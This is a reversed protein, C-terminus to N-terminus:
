RDWEIRVAVNKRPKGGMPRPGVGQAGTGHVHRKPHNLPLDCEFTQPPKNPIGTPMELYHPCASM